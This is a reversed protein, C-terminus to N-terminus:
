INSSPIKVLTCTLQQKASLSFSLSFQYFRQSRFSYVLEAQTLELSLMKSQGIGVPAYHWFHPDQTYCTHHHVTNVSYFLASQKQYCDVVRCLEISHLQDWALYFLKIADSAGVMKSVQNYCPCKEIYNNYVTWHFESHLSWQIVLV